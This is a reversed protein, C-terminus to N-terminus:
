GTDGVGGNAAAEKGLELVLHTLAGDQERVTLNGRVLGVRGAFVRRLYVVRQRNDESTRVTDGDALAAQPNNAM